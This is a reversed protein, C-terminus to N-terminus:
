RPDSLNGTELFAPEVVDFGLDPITHVGGGVALGELVSLRRVHCLLGVTRRYTVPEM